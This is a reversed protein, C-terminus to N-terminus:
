YLIIENRTAIIFPIFLTGLYLYVIMLYKRVTEECVLERERQERIGNKHKLKRLSFLRFM